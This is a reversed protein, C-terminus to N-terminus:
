YKVILQGVVVLVVIVITDSDRYNVVKIIIIMSDGLGLMCSSVYFAYMHSFCKLLTKYCIVTFSGLVACM